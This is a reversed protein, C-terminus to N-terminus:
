GLAQDLRMFLTAAQARNATDQPRFTGDDYGAMLGSLRM